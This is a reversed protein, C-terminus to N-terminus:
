ALSTPKRTAQDVFRTGFERKFGLRPYAAVVDAVIAAPVDEFREGTVDVGASDWILVVEAAPDAPLEFNNHLAIADYVARARAESGGTERVFRQAAVAGDVEYGGGIDFTPIMGIDHLMASVYLIEPDFDLKDHRALEVAWAYVRVSHNVLWAPAVGAIHERARTALASDPVPIGLRALAEEMLADYSGSGNSRRETPSGSSSRTAMPTTCGRSGVSEPQM